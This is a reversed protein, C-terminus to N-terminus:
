YKKVVVFVGNKPIIDIHWTVANKYSIPTIRVSLLIQLGQCHRHKCDAVNHTQWYNQLLVLGRIKVSFLMIVMM